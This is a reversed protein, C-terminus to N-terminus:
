DIQLYFSQIIKRVNGSSNSLTGNELTAGDNYVGYGVRMIGYASSGGSNTIDTFTLGTTSAIIINNASGFQSFGLVVTSASSMTLGVTLTSNTDLIQSSISGTSITSIQKNPRFIMLIRRNAVVGVTPGGPTGRWTVTVSTDGAEIIKYIAVEAMAGSVLSTTIDTWGSTWITGSWGSGTGVWASNFLIALDGPQTGVPISVAVAGGTSSVNTISQLTMESLNGAPFFPFPIM